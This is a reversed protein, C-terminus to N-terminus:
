KVIIWYGNNDKGVREILKEQKLKSLARSVTKESINLLSALDAMRYYGNEKLLNLVKEENPTLKHEAENGRFFIFRFGLKTKVYEYRINNEKCLEFTREFGSGFSDIEGTKFLTRIIKPNLEIPEIAQTAFDEPNYGIPFEGPNYFSIRNSYIDIEFSTNSAYKAHCFMNVIIERLAKPPIEPTDIRQLSGDLTSTWKMNKMVFSYAENICEYINGSFHNLQLFTKKTDTAFIATKLLIPEDKSFLVNGANNLYNSNKYLLGLKSLLVDKDNSDYNIRGSERGKELCKLLLVENVHDLSM